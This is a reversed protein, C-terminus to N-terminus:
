MYTIGMYLSAIWNNMHPLLQPSSVFVNTRAQISNNKSSIQGGTLKKKGSLVYECTLAVRQHQQLVTDVDM